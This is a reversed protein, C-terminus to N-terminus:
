AAVTLTLQELPASHEGAGQPSDTSPLFSEGAGSSSRASAAPAVGAREELPVLVYLYAAPGTLGTIHECRITLGEIVSRPEKRCKPCYLPTTRM